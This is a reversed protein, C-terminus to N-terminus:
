AVGIGALRFGLMRQQLLSNRNAKGTAVPKSLSPKGYKQRKTYHDWGHQGSDAHVWPRGDIPIDALGAPAASPLHSVGDNAVSV